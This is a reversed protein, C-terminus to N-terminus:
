PVMLGALWEELGRSWAAAGIFVWSSSSRLFVQSRFPSVRRKRASGVIHNKTPPKKRMVPGPSAKRLLIPVM